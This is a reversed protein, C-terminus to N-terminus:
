YHWLIDCDPRPQAFRVADISQEVCVLRDRAERNYSMQRAGILVLHITAAAAIVVFIITSVTDWTSEESRHAWTGGALVGFALLFMGALALVAPTLHTM